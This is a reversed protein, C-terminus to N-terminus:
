DRLGLAQAYAERAAVKADNWAGAKRRQQRRRRRWRELPGPSRQERWNLGSALQERYASQGALFARRIGELNAKTMSYRQIADELLSDNLAIEDIPGVLLGAVDTSSHRRQEDSWVTTHDHEIASWRLRDQWAVVEGYTAGCRTAHSEIHREVEDAARDLADLTDALAQLEAIGLVESGVNDPSAPWMARFQRLGENAPCLSKFTYEFADLQQLAREVLMREQQEREMRQRRSDIIREAVLVVGGVIVGTVAASLLDPIFTSWDAPWAAIEPRVEGTHRPPARM